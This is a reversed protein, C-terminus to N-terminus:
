ENWTEYLRWANYALIGGGIVWGVPNSVLATAIAGTVMGSGVAAGLISLGVGVGNVAIDMKDWGTGHGTALRAVSM